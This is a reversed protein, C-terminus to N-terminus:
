HNIEHIQLFCELSETEFVRAFQIDFIMLHGNLRQYREWVRSYLTYRQITGCLSTPAPAALDSDRKIKYNTRM